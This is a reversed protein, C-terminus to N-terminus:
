RVTAKMAAPAAISGPDSQAALVSIVPQLQSHAIMNSCSRRCSITSAADGSSNCVQIGRTAVAPVSSPTKPQTRHGRPRDAPQEPRTRTSGKRSSATRIRGYILAPIVSRCQKIRDLDEADGATV